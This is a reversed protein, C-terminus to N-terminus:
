LLKRDIIWTNKKSLIEFNDHVMQCTQIFDKVEDSPLKFWETGAGEKINYKNYRTKLNSEIKSYWKSEFIKEINLPYAMSTNLEKLRRNINKTFGIKYLGDSEYKSLLYVYM